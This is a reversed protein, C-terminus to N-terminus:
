AILKKFKEVMPNALPNVRRELALYYSVWDALIVCSFINLLNKEKLEVTITKLHNKRYIRKLVAIRRLIKSQSSKDKIIVFYFKNTLSLFKNEFAAIENHNLEPFLQFYAPIKANENLKVKWNLAIGENTGSAYIIVVLAKKLKEALIKGKKEYTLPKLLYVLKESENLSKNDGIIKLLSRFSYGIALRPQLADKPFVIYPINNKAATQILKGGTGIAVAFFKKKIAKNLFDLTEETEGSYSSAIFLTKKLSSKNDFPLGYDSHIKIDLEPKWVKLLDAALHSGGMGGVIIKKIGKLPLNKANKIEPKFSFQKHFNEIVQRM